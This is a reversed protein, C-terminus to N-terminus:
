DWDLDDDNEQKGSLTPLIGHKMLLQEVGGADKADWDVRIWNQKLDGAKYVLMTPLMDLDVEDEEEEYEWEEDEVLDDLRATRDQSSGGSLLSAFGLAAARSRLFKTYPYSRALLALTTDLSHCAEVSSDYIHVVVWADREEVADVFGEVGVERLHGFRKRGEGGKEAEGGGGIRVLKRGGARFEEEERWSLAGRGKEEWEKQKERAELSKRGREIMSAERADRIVGKVGTRGPVGQGVQVSSANPNPPLAPSPSRSSAPSLTSPTRPPSRPGSDGFIDGTLILQEFRDM